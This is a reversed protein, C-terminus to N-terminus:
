DTPKENYDWHKGFERKGLCRRPQDLTLDLDMWGFSIIVSLVNTHSGQISHV